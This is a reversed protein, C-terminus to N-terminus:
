NHDNKIRLRKVSSCPRKYWSRSNHTMKFMRSYYLVLSAVTTCSVFDCISHKLERVALPLLRLPAAPNYNMEREWREAFVDLRSETHWYHASVTTRRWRCCCRTVASARHPKVSSSRSQFWNVAVRCMISTPGFIRISIHRSIKRKLYSLRYAPALYKYKENFCVVGASQM